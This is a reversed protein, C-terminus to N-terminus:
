GEGLAAELRAALEPVPCDTQGAERRLPKLGVVGRALEDDGIILALQAGSQDARSFQSKFKGGGLNLEIRRRPLAERLQEILPLAAVAAQQGNVVVYV